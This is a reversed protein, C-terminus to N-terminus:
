SVKSKLFDVILDARSEQSGYRSLIASANGSLKEFSFRADLFESLREAVERHATPEVYVAASACIDKAFDRKAVILPKRFSLAELYTGSFTELISPIYVVKSPGYVMPMDSYSYSGITEIAFEVNLSTALSKVKLWIPHSKPITLRIKFDEGRLKLLEKAVFPLTELAKHSYPAAPSLIVHKSGQVKEIEKEAEAFSKSDPLSALDTANSVVHTVEKSVGVRRCFGNRSVDTQFLFFDGELKARVLKYVIGPIQALSSLLRKGFIIDKIGAHTIYPNSIGLVHKARFRVYSPGAMTYVLDPKIKNEFSKLKKRALLSRAPSPEIVTCKDVLEGWSELLDFVERSCAISLSVDKSNSIYKIFLASNKVGGGVVNTTCNFLIKM